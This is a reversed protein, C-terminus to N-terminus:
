VGHRRRQQLTSNVQSMNIAALILLVVGAAILILVLSAPWQAFPSEPASLWKLSGVIPLLVGLTLLIPIMTRRTQLTRAAAADRSRNLHRPTTISRTPAAASAIQEVIPADAAPADSVTRMSALADAVESKSPNEESLREVKGTKDFFTRPRHRLRSTRQQM